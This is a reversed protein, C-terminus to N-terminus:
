AFIINDLSERASQTNQLSVECRIETVAKLQLDNTKKLINRYFLCDIYNKKIAQDARKVKNFVDKDQAMGKALAIAASKSFLAAIQRNNKSDYVLWGAASKRVIMHKIRISNGKKYPLAIQEIGENIIEELSKILELNM